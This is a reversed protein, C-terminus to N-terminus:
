LENGAVRKAEYYSQLDKVQSKTADYYAQLMEDWQSAKAFGLKTYKESFSYGKRPFYIATGKANKQKRGHAKSHGVFQNAMSKAATITALASAKATSDSASINTELLTLLHILDVNARYYFKQVSRLAAKTESLFNGTLELALNDLATVLQDTMSARVWSQTTSSVGQSGGDYSTDYADVISTSVQEPSWTPNAVVPSLSEKYAWGEGPETDESALMIEVNDKIAYSVEVMQMLCADFALIDLKRGLLERMVQTGELLQATTIHNGSEDDYSIGKFITNGPFKNWGSGHNWVVLAYKKAPYNEVGWSFFDQLVNIDGMDIEGMDELVDHGGKKIYLRKAPKAHSRDFQVVVNVQDSSGVEEMEAVDGVGFRDLNNDANLFVLFTWEKETKSPDGSAFSSSLSTSLLLASIM